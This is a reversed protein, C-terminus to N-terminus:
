RHLMEVRNRGRQKALYMAEDARQLVAEGTDPEAFLAVGISVTLRLGDGDEHAQRWPGEMPQSEVMARLREAVAKAGPGDANPLFIAFEEGGLRGMVDEKRLCRGALEVFHRLVDDGCHHGWTDNIRKFHDLDMVLVPLATQTRQANSIAKDLLTLFARRNFVSTLPDVEALHRLERTTFEHTLMLVGFGILVVALTAELVVFQSLLAILAESWQFGALPSSLKFLAPRVLVFLGHAGIALGVIYRVPAHRFGGRALTYATLLFCPGSFGGSLAFRVGPHPQVVTFYASLVLLAVLGVAAVGHRLPSRGMYARSGMLCTYSAVAISGQALMVSLLEPMLSRALLTTSFVTAGLFSLVWLRLGPINRNFYWVAYLVATVLAALLAALIVLTPSHM